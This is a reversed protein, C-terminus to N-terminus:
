QGVIARNRELLEASAAIVANGVEDRILHTLLDADPVTHLSQLVGKHPIQTQPLATKPSTLPYWSLPTKRAQLDKTITTNCPPKGNRRVRRRFAKQREANQIREARRRAAETPYKRPRGGRRISQKPTDGRCERSCWEGCEGQRTFRVAGLILGCRDCVSDAFAGYKELLKRSQQFSLHM